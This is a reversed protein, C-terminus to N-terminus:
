VHLVLAKMEVMTDTPPATSPERNWDRLAVCTDAGWGSPEHHPSLICSLDKMKVGLSLYVLLRRSCSRESDTPLSPVPLAHQSTYALFHM